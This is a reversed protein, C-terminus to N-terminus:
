ADPLWPYREPEVALRRHVVEQFERRGDARHAENAAHRLWTEHFCLCLLAADLALSAGVVRCTEGIRTLPAPFVADFAGLRDDYSGRALEADVAAYFLDSLPVGKPSADEWDIVAVAGGGRAVLLNWMTLDGHVAVSARATRSTATLAAELWLAYSRDVDLTQALEVVNRETPRLADAADLTARHWAALWGALREFVDEVQSPPVGAAVRGIIADETLLVMGDLERLSIATPVIVGHGSASVALTSLAAHERRLRDGRADDFAIKVFREEAEVRVLATAGGVAGRWSLKVSVSPQNTADLGAIDALWQGPLGDRTALVALDSPTGLQRAQARTSLFSSARRLRPPNPAFSTPLVSAVRADIVSPAVGYVVAHLGRRALLRRAMRPFGTRAVLLEGAALNAAHKSVLRLQLDPVVLARAGGAPRGRPALLRFLVGADSRPEVIPGEAGEVIATPTV